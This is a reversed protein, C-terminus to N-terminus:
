SGRAIIAGTAPDRRVAGVPRDDHVPDAQVHQGSGSRTTGAMRALDAITTQYDGFRVLDGSQVEKQKVRTWREGSRVFTGGSSNCDTLLYKGSRGRVLEAHRRSVTAHSLAIECGSQRGITFTQINSM